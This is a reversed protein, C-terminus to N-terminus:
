LFKTLIRFNEQFFCGELFKLFAVLPLVTACVHTKCCFDMYDRVIYHNYWLFLLFLVLWIYHSLFDSFFHLKNCAGESNRFQSFEVKIKFCKGFRAQQTFFFFGFINIKICTKGGIKLGFHRNISFNSWVSTSSLKCLQRGFITKRKM